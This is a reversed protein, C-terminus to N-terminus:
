GLEDELSRVPVEFAVFRGDKNGVVPGLPAPKYGYRKAMRMLIPAGLMLCRKAGLQALYANAGDLVARAVKPDRSTSVLRTLEWSEKDTPPEQSCMESPLDIRGRWADRIMYSYGTTDPGVVTDCRLLRAGAIVQQGEHAIVYHAIQAVDYQEYELGESADLEWQMEEIFVQQRLQYFKMVLDWRAIAHPLKLVSLQM